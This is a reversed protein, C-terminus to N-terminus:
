YDGIGEVHETRRLTKTYTTSSNEYMQSAQETWEQTEAVIAGEARYIKTYLIRRNNMRVKHGRSFFRLLHYYCEKIQIIHNIYKETSLTVKSSSDNFFLWLFSIFNYFYYYFLIIKREMGWPATTPPVDAVEPPNVGVCDLSQARTLRAWLTASQLRQIHPKPDTERERHTEPNSDIESSRETLRQTQTERQTETESNRETLRQRQTERESDRYRNRETLRQRQTEKQSDKFRLRKASRFLGRMGHRM